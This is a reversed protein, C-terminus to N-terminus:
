RRTLRDILADRSEDKLETRKDKAAKAAKMDAESQRQRQEAEGSKKWAGRLLWLLGAVAAALIASLELM